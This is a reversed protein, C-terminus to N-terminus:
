IHYNQYFLTEQPDLLGSLVWGLAVRIIILYFHHHFCSRLGFEYQLFPLLILSSFMYWWPFFLTTHIYKNVWIWFFYTIEFANQVILYARMLVYVFYVSKDIPWNKYATFTGPLSHFPHYPPSFRSSRVLFTPWLCQSTADRTDSCTEGSDGVGHRIYHGSAQNRDSIDVEFWVCNRLLSM